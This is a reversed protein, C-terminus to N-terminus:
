DDWGAYVPLVKWCQLQSAEVQLTSQNLLWSALNSRMYALEDGCLGLLDRALAAANLYLEGEVIPATALYYQGEILALWYAREEAELVALTGRPKSVLESAVLHGVAQFWQWNEITHTDAGYDPIDINIPIV